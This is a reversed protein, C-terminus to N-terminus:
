FVSRGGITLLRRVDDDDEVWRTLAEITVMRDREGAGGLHEYPEFPDGLHSLVAFAGPFEQGRSFASPTIVARIGAATAAQLGNASDELVLCRSAPLKLRRLVELYVDPAPKKAAVMDGTVIVEFSELGRVDLTAMLLAEVNAQSTTTAIALRVGKARAEDILREVGIRLRATQEDILAGYLRTKLMHLKDLRELASAGGPPDYAAVYHRIRERGGAVELLKGYLAPDWTWGLEFRSFAANFARRHVEETESLTGDCDFILAKLASM